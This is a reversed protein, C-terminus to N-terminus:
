FCGRGRGGEWKQIICMRVAGSASVMASVFLPQLSM